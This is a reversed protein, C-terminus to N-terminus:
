DEMDIQRTPKRTPDLPAKVQNAFQLPQGNLMSKMAARRMSKDLIIPSVIGGEIYPHEPLAPCDVHQVVAGRIRSLFGDSSELEDRDISTEIGCRQCKVGIVRTGKAADYFDHFKIHAATPEYTRRLTALLGIDHYLASV